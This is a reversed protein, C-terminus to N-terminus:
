VPIAAWSRVCSLKWSKEHYRNVERSAVLVGSWALAVWMVCSLKAITYHMTHDHLLARASAFRNTWLGQSSHPLSGPARGERGPPGTGSHAASLNPALWPVM